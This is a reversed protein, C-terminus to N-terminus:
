CPACLGTVCGGLRSSCMQLSITQYPWYPSAAGALHGPAPHKRICHEDGLHLYMMGMTIKLKSSNPPRRSHHNSRRWLYNPQLEEVDIVQSCSKWM